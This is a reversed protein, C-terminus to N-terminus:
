SRGPVTPKFMRPAWMLNKQSVLGMMQKKAPFIVVGGFKRWLHSGLKEITPSLKHTIGRKTPPTYLCYRPKLPAFGAQYFVDYLQHGTYPTGYGFPTTTTQAWAGRRNPAIVLIEGGSRIVRWAEQLVERVHDSFELSHVLIIRDVSQDLLPWDTEDVLAVLNKRRKPWAVAGQQAPMLSIVQEAEGRFMDLFPCGYGFGVVIENKVDPWTEELAKAVYRQALQGLSTTYFESLREADLWM